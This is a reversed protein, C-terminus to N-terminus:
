KSQAAQKTCVSSPKAHTRLPCAQAQVPIFSTTKPTWGLFGISGWHPWPSPLVFFSRSCSVKTHLLTQGRPGLTSCLETNSGETIGPLWSCSRTRNASKQEQLRLRASYLNSDLLSTHAWILYFGSEKVENVVVPGRQVARSRGSSLLSAWPQHPLLPCFAPWM